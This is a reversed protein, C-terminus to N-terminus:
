HAQRQTLAYFIMIIFIAIFPSIWIFGILLTCLGLLVLLIVFLTCGLVLFFNSFVLKISSTMARGLTMNKIVIYPITFTFFLQVLMVVSVYIIIHQLLFVDRFIFPIRLLLHIILMYIFSPWFYKLGKIWLHKNVEKGHIWQWVLYVCGTAFFAYIGASLGAIFINYPLSLLLHPQKYIVYQKVGAEIIHPILALMVIWWVYRKFGSTMLWSQRVINKFSVQMNAPLSVNTKTSM